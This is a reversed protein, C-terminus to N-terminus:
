DISLELGMWDSNMKMRKNAAPHLPEAVFVGVTANAVSSGVLTLATICDVGEDSVVCTGSGAAVALEGPRGNSVSAGAGVTVVAGIEAGLGVGTLGSVISDSRARSYGPLSITM